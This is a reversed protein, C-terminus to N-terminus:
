TSSMQKYTESSLHFLFIAYVAQGWSWAKGAMVLVRPHQTPLLGPSGLLLSPERNFVAVRPHM